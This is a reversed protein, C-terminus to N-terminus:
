QEYEILYVGQVRATFEMKGGSVPTPPDFPAMASEELAYLPQIPRLASADESIHVLRGLTVGAQEALLQAERKMDAVAEARAQDELTTHDDIDFRVGHIRVLDGAAQAVQDIITGADEVKRVKVKAQNSVTYGTLRNEWANYCTMFSASQGDKQRRDDDDECREVEVGQYRPAVTFRSTRVDDPSIGSKTLATMVEDMADAAKARAEAATDEHAEVGLSIVAVDPVGTATGTGSVHIGAPGDYALAPKYEYPSPNTIYPDTEASPRDDTIKATRNRTALQDPDPTPEPTSVLAPTHTPYPTHAPEAPAMAAVTASVRLAIEEERNETDACGLTLVATLMSLLIIAKM